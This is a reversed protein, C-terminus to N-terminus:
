GNAWRKQAAIRARESRKAHEENSPQYDAWDHIDWGAQAMDWLGVEMLDDAERKTGHIMPLAHSPLYGNLGQAGSWAVAGWYVTIAKFKKREVLMLFKPNHPWQSDMRVWPLAM